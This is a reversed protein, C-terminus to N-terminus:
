QVTTESANSTLWTAGPTLPEDRAMADLLVQDLDQQPELSAFWPWYPGGGDCGLPRETASCAIRLHMHDDHAASDSPQYMVQQARWILWTPEGIALAQQVMLAKIDRSVFMWLIEINPDTLLTRLLQWEREVDLRVFQRTRPVAAISDSGVNVFGPSKLPQGYLDMFYFLLDVDRGTRHSAHHPIKGGTRASFDGVVLPPGGPAAQAVVAAASQVAAVLRPVGWYNPSEPRFREYGLGSVPLEAGETLVGHSPTGVSGRLSPALPSVTGVCAVMLTAASLAALSTLTAAAGRRVPTSALV